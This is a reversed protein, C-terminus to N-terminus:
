PKRNRHHGMSSMGSRHAGRHARKMAMKCRLAPGRQDPNLIKYFAKITMEQKVDMMQNISKALKDHRDRADQETSKKNAITKMLAKYQARIKKSIKKKALASDKHVQKLADKQAGSLQVKACVRKARKFTMRNRAARRRSNRNMRHHKESSEFTSADLSLDETVTLILDHDSAFSPTALLLAGSLLSLTKKM